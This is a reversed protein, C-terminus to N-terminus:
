EWLAPCEKALLELPSPFFNDWCVLFPSFVLLVAINLWILLDDLGIGKKQLRYIISAYPFTYSYLLYSVITAKFISWNESFKCSQSKQLKQKYFWWWIEGWHAQGTRSEVHVELKWLVSLIAIFFGKRQKSNTGIGKSDWYSSYQFIFLGTQPKLNWKASLSSPNLSFGLIFMHHEELGHYYM